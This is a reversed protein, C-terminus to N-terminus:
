RRYVLGAVELEAMRADFEERTILGEFLAWRLENEEQSTCCPRPADGKGAESHM